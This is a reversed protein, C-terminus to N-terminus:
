QLEWKKIMRALNGGVVTWPEVDTTVAVGEVIEVGFSRLLCIRWCHALDFEAMVCSGEKM